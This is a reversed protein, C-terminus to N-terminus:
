FTNLVISVMALLGGLFLITVGIRTIWANTRSLVWRKQSPLWRDYISAWSEMLMRYENPRFWAVFTLIGFAMTVFISWITEMVHAM